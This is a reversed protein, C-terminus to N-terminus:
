VAGSVTAWKNFHRKSGRSHEVWVSSYHRRGGNCLNNSHHLTALCGWRWSFTKFVMQM